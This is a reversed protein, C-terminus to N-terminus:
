RVFHDEPRSRCPVSSCTRDGTIPHQHSKAERGQSSHSPETSRTWIGCNRISTRCDQIGKANGGVSGDLWVTRSDANLGMVPFHRERIRLHYNGTQRREFILIARCFSLRNRCWLFTQQWSRLRSNAFKGTNKGTLLSHPGLSQNAGSERCRWVTRIILLKHLFERSGECERAFKRPNQKSLSRLINETQLNLEFSRYNRQRPIRCDRESGDRSISLGQNGFALANESLLGYRTPTTVIRLKLISVRAFREAQLAAHMNVSRRTIGSTPHFTGNEIENVATTLVVGCPVCLAACFEDEIIKQGGSFDLGHDHHHRVTCRVCIRRSWSVVISRLREDRTSGRRSIIEM